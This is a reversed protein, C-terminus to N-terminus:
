VVIITTICFAVGFLMTVIAEWRESETSEPSKADPHQDEM